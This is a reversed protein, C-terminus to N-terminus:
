KQVVILIMDLHAIVVIEPDREREVLRRDAHRAAAQREPTIDAGDQREIDIEAAHLQSIGRGLQDRAELMAPVNPAMIAVTDGVGIGRRALASALRRTRAYLESYTCSREGHIVAPKHPYVAAARHLFGAPTLPVHNALRRGLGDEFRGGDGSPGIPTTSHDPGM